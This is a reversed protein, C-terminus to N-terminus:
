SGVGSYKDMINFVLNHDVECDRGSGCGLEQRVVSPDAGAMTSIMDAAFVCSNTNLNPLVPMFGATHHTAHHQQSSHSNHRQQQQYIQPLDFDYIDHQYQNIPSKFIPSTNNSSIDESCPAQQSPRRQICISTPPNATISPTRTASRQSAMSKHQPYQQSPNSITVAESNQRENSSSWSPQVASESSDRSQVNLAATSGISDCPLNTKTALVHELSEVAAGHNGDKSNALANSFLAIEIADNDIGNRNLLARM